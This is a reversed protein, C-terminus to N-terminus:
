GQRSVLDKKDNGQETGAVQVQGALESLQWGEKGDLLAVVYQDAPILVSMTLRTHNLVETLELTERILSGVSNLIAFQHLRQELVYRQQWTMWILISVLMVSLCYIVFIPLGGSGFAVAGFLAFPLTLLAALLIATELDVVLASTVSVVPVLGVAGQAPPLSFNVTIVYLLLLLILQPAERRQTALWIAVLLMLFLLVGNMFGIFRQRQRWCGPFINTFMM